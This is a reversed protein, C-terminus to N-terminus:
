ISISAPDFPKELLKRVHLHDNARQIDNPDLTSSIMFITTNQKVSEPLEEYLNLFEFGNLEPMKIDLLICMREEPINNKLWEIGKNASEVDVVEHNSYSEELLIRTILRDTESDDIILFM